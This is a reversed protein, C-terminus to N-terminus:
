ARPDVSTAYEKKNHDNGCGDLPLLLGTVIIAGILLAIVALTIYRKWTFPLFIELVDLMKWFCQPDFYTTFCRWGAKLPTWSNVTCMRKGTSTPSATLPRAASATSSTLNTSSHAANDNAYVDNVHIDAAYIDCPTFYAFSDKATLVPRPANLVTLATLPQQQLGFPLSSLKPLPLGPLIRGGSLICLDCSVEESVRSQITQPKPIRTKTGELEADLVQHQVSQVEDVFTVSGRRSSQPSELDRTRTFTRRLWPGPRARTRWHNGTMRRHHV